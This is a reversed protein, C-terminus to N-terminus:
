RYNIHPAYQKMEDIFGLPANLTGPEDLLMGIGLDMKLFTYGAEM